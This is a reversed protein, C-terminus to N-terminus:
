SLCILIKTKTSNLSFGFKRMERTLTRLSKRADAESPCIIRIDDVYRYYDYGNAVMAEDVDHLMVNSLFSSADRNQPLGVGSQFSWKRLNARLCEIATRIYSKEEGSCDILEIFSIMRDCVQDSSIGEFFNSLDTVSLCSGSKYFTFTIGEFTNWREIKNKFLYKKDLPYKEYRYSLVRNSLMPDIFPIIYTVAAQYLFRDFFDTELAYREAFGKKPIGRVTPRDAEYLGNGASYSAALIDLCTDKSTFFDKYQLADAYWDDRMDQKLHQLVLGLDVPFGLLRSIDMKSNLAGYRIPRNKILTLNAPIAAKSSHPAESIISARSCSVRM